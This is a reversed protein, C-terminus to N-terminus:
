KLQELIFSESRLSNQSQMQDPNILSNNYKIGHQQQQNTPTIIPMQCSNYDVDCAENNNFKNFNNTQPFYDTESAWINTNFNPPQVFTATDFSSENESFDFKNDKLNNTPNNIWEELDETQDISEESNGLLENGKNSPTHIYEVNQMSGVYGNSTAPTYFFNFPHSFKSACKVTVSVSGGNVVNHFAPVQCVIHCQHLFQKQVYAEATWALTGNEKYERFVVSTNRDFNRGIIFLDMGGHAPAHTLSMKMVEPVGLQQVCRIADSETQVITMSSSHGKDIYARFVLRVTNSGPGAQFQQRELLENARRRSPRRTKVDYSCIKLIGVCDLIAQMNNEPRVMVELCEIGDHSTIRQCPTTNATKGLVQILQYMDHPRIPGDGTGAYIEVRTPRYHGSLQITCHSYGSRDKIAGRSGESLYRARHQEEPQKVVLLQFNNMNLFHSGAAHTTPRSMQQFAMQNSMDMSPSWSGSDITQRIAKPAVAPQEQGYWSDSGEFENTRKRSVVKKTITNIHM